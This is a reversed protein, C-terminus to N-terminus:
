CIGLVRELEDQMRELNGHNEDVAEWYAAITEEDECNKFAEAIREERQIWTQWWEIGDSDLLYERGDEGPQFDVGYNGLIDGMLEIGSDSLMTLEITENTETNRITAM